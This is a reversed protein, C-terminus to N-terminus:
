ISYKAYRSTFALMDLSFKGDTKFQTCISDVDDYSVIFPSKKKKKKKKQPPPPPTVHM